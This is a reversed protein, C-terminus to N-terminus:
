SVAKVKLRNLAKRVELIDYRYSRYGLKVFPILHRRRLRRFTYFPVNLDECVQKDTRLRLDEDPGIATENM